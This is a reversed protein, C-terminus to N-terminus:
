EYRLAQAPKIAAARWAPYITAFLTLVLALLAIGTVQWPEIVIPLGAGDTYAMIGVGFADLLPNLLLCLLLGILVGLLTGVIGNYAGQVLLMAFVAPRSLGQTQLIAIDYRKDHIVMVLASVVNFAAVAVVLTLMFLMMGKEMRVAAFLRGYRETWQGIRSEENVQPALVAAVQEARFADDLYLRIGSVHGEPFRLLRALDDGHMLVLQRDIEAGLEFQGVVRFMRQAPMVGVPTFQGGAAAVIRVQEGVQVDLRNALPRGLIIGYEGAELNNLSGRVMHRTVVNHHDEFEPYLGQLMVANLQGRGQVLGEIQVYPSSHLVSEPLKLAARQAQWDAMGTNATASITVQPVVGLIRNKLENEFGNMVSTVVILAAVGIMIGLLSFRNIFRTFASGQSSRSYRVGLFLPAPQFM